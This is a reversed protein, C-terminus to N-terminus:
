WGPERSPSGRGCVGRPRAQARAADHLAAALLVMGIGVALFALTMLYGHPGNAYQSLRSSRPELDPSVVHLTAVLAPAAVLFAASSRILVIPTM